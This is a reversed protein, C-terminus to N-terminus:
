RLFPFDALHQRVVVADSTDNRLSNEHAAKFKDLLGADAWDKSMWYNLHYRHKFVPGPGSIFAPGAGGAWSEHGHAGLHGNHAQATRGGPSRDCLFVVDVHRDM